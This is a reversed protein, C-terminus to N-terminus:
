DARLSRGSSSKISSNKKARYPRNKPIKESYAKGIGPLAELQQATASNIDLLDAV